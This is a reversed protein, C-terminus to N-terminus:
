KKPKQRSVPASAFELRTVAIRDGSRTGQVQILWNKPRQSSNVMAWALENGHQDFRLVENSALLLAYGGDRCAPMLLCKRTHASGLEALQDAEERVCVNDVLYGRLPKPVDPASSCAGTVAFSCFLFICAFPLSRRFSVM